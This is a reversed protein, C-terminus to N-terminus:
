LEATIQKAYEYLPMGFFDTVKGTPQFGNKQYFRVARELPETTDLTIFSCGREALTQEAAKLLEGAVGSGQWDPHVAMGRLHGGKEHVVSYAITGVVENTDTVAVYVQMASLREHVTEATLITDRYAGKSYRTRFPEFAIRLCDLIGCADDLAASRIYFRGRM